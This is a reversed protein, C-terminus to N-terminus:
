VEVDGRHLLPQRFNSSSNLNHSSIDNQNPPRYEFEGRSPDFGPYNGNNSLKPITGTPTYVSRQGLHNPNVIMQQGMQQAPIMHTPYHFQPPPYQMQQLTSQDAMSGKPLQSLQSEDTTYTMQVCDPVPRLTHQFDARSHLPASSWFFEAGHSKEGHDRLGFNSLVSKCGRQAKINCLCHYIFSAVAHFIAIAALFIAVTEDGNGEGQAYYLLILGWECSLLVTLLGVWLLTSRIQQVHLQYEPNDRLRTASFLILLMSLSALIVAPGAASWTFSISEGAFCLKDTRPFMQTGAAGLTILIPLGFCAVHLWWGIPQNKLPQSCLLALYAPRVLCWCFSMLCMTHIFVSVVNCAPDSANMKSNTSSITVLAVMLVFNIARAASNLGGADVISAEPLLLSAVGSAAHLLAALVLVAMLMTEVTSIEESIMITEESYSEQTNQGQGLSVPGSGRSCYCITSGTEANIEHRCSNGQVESCGASSMDFHYRVSWNVPENCDTHLSGMWQDSGIKILSRYSSSPASQDFELAIPLNSSPNEAPELWTQIHDFKVEFPQKNARLKCSIRSLLRQVVTVSERRLDLSSKKKEIVPTIESVIELLTTELKGSDLDRPNEQRLQDVFELIKKLDWARLSSKNEVVSKLLDEATTQAVNSRSIRATTKQVWPSLCQSMDPESTWYPQSNSGSCRLIAKGPSEYCSTASSAGYEAASFQLGWFTMPPCSKPSRTTRPTKKTTTTTTTTTPKLIDRPQFRLQYTIAIGSSWVQLSRVKPDYKVSTTQAPFGQLELRSVISEDVHNGNVTDFMFLLRNTDAEIAYLIGCTMWAEAVMTKEFRTNFTKLVKLSSPDLQSLVIQGNNNETAYIAWLGSEDVALDIDTNRDISYPSTDYYNADPLEVTRSEFRRELDYMVIQRSQRKNYYLKRDRVVFGTGDARTDLRYHTEQSGQVLSELSRFEKLETAGSQDWPLFYVRSESDLPDTAWAGEQRYQTFQERPTSAALAVGPCEFDVAECDYEVTLYGTGDDCPDTGFTSPDVALSCQPKGNCATSVAQKTHVVPLSCKKNPALETKASQCVDSEFRGFMAKIINIETGSPCVLDLTQGPCGTRSRASALAPLLILATLM